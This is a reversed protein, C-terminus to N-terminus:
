TPTEPTTVNTNITTANNVTNVNELANLNDLIYTSLVDRLDSTFSADYSPTGINNIVQTNVFDQLEPPFNINVNNQTIAGINAILFVELIDRVDIRIAM